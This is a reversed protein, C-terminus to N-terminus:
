FKGILIKINKMLEQIIIENVKLDALTVPDENM